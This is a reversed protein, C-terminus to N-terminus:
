SRAAHEAGKARLEVSLEYMVAGLREPAAAM